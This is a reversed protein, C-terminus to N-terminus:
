YLATIGFLMSGVPAFDPVEATLTGLLLSFVNAILAGADPTDVLVTPINFAVMANVPAYVEEGTVSNSVNVWASISVSCRTQAGDVGATKSRIDVTVPYRSDGTALVYKSAGNKADGSFATQRLSAVNFLPIKVDTTSTVIGPISSTITM